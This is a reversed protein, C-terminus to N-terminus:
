AGDVLQWDDAFYRYLIEDNRGDQNEHHWLSLSGRSSWTAIRSYCNDFPVIFRPVGNRALHGAVWVDDVFFSEPPADSYDFLAPTLFRRRVLFGASGQMIEVPEAGSLHTGYHTNRKEIDYGAPIAFGRSGVAANPMADSAAVLTEVLNRPYIQDDDVVIIRTDPEKERELTPLLKTGPGRDEGCDIREVQPIENLFEPIDYDRRERRAHSPLNLCIADPRRSQDLLSNLTPRIKSIRDPITTLSVVVRAPTSPRPAAEFRRIFVQSPLVHLAAFRCLESAWSLPRRIILRTVVEGTRASERAGSEARGGL